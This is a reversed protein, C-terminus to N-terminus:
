YKLREMEYIDLPASAVVHGGHSTHINRVLCHPFAPDHHQEQAARRIAACIAAPSLSVAYDIVDQQGQPDEVRVTVLSGNATETCEEIRNPKVTIEGGGALPMRFAFEQYASM